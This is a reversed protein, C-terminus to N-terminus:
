RGLSTLLKKECDQSCLHIPNRGDFKVGTHPDEPYYGIWGQKAATELLALEEKDWIEKGCVDCTLFHLGNGSIEHM